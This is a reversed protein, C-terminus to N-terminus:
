LFRSKRWKILRPTHGRKANLELKTNFNLRSLQVALSNTAVDEAPDAAITLLLSAPRDESSNELSFLCKFVNLYSTIM